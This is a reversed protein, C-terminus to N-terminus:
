NCIDKIRLQHHCILIKNVNEAVSDSVIKFAESLPTKPEASHIFYDSEIAFVYDAASNLKILSDLSNKRRRPGEFTYPICAVTISTAGIDKAINTVLPTVGGGDDDGIASLTVVLEAGSLAKFIEDYHKFALKESRQPSGGDLGYEEGEAINLKIKAHLKELDFSNTVIAMTDVSFSTTKMFEELYEAGDYGIGVIKIKSMIM